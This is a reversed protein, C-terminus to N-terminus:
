GASLGSNVEALYDALASLESLARVEYDVEALHRYGLQNVYCFQVGAQKAVLYDCGLSSGIHLVHQRPLNNPTLALDFIRRQPKAVGVDGSVVVEEFYQAIGSNNIRQRQYNALGNSILYLPVHQALQALVAECYPQLVCTQGFAALYQETLTRHDAIPLCHKFADSIYEHASQQYVLGRSKYTVLQKALSAPAINGLECQSLVQRESRWLDCLTNDFNFCLAAFM